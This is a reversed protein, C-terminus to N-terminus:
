EKVNGISQVAAPGPHPVTSITPHDYSFNMQAYYGRYDSPLENDAILFQVRGQSADAQGVLRRYLPVTIQEQNNLALQPTDIILLTPYYTDNRRLAVALLSTWYAVQIATIIGGGKSFTQYSEGNLLPLYNTPHITADEVGPVGLAIVTSQFEENLETLIEERRLRLNEEAHDLDSRKEERDTRLQKAVAGIDDARDWQRLIQELQQQRVRATARKQMMDGFAQLRPAIRERTRVDLEASLSKVLQERAAVAETITAVQEGLTELQGEMEVLQDSLQREEYSDDRAQAATVPDPLLCVRCTDDPVPRETLSQMCRPCVTFEISALRAGADRMRHYRDLDAQVRRRESACEAQQRAVSVLAQRAEDLSSEAGSLMDRITLTERDTVPDVANRFEALADDAAQEDSLAAATAQVADARSTTGSDRLFELVMQYHAEAKAVENNLTNLESRLRLVNADTLVFLLEFVSKRKPERYPELSHAIERNIDSQAVYMFTLLDAFTIRDGANTSGSRRTAARMDPSLGLANMLLASLSPQAASVHHDPLREKTIRDTVRVRQGKRKDLSRRLTFQSNGITVDLIVDNVHERAVPALLGDCGLGYKILELLTTKGVGTPGALVTLDSPFQYEVLGETTDVAVADIRVKSTV